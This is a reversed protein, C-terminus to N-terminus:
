EGHGTCKVDDKCFLNIHHPPRTLPHLLLFVHEHEPYDYDTKRLIKSRYSAPNTFTCGLSHLYSAYINIYM